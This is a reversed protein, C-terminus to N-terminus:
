FVDIDLSDSQTFVRLPDDSKPLQYVVMSQKNPNKMIMFLNSEDSSINKIHSLFGVLSGWLETSKTLSIKSSFENLDWSFIQLIRHKSPNTSIERSYFALKIIASGSVIGM